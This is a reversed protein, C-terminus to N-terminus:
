SMREVKCVYLVRIRICDYVVFLRDWLVAIVRGMRSVVVWDAPQFIRHQFSECFSVSLSKSINPTRSRHQEKVFTAQMLESIVAYRVRVVREAVESM